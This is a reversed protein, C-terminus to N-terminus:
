YFDQLLSKSDVPELKHASKPASMGCYLMVEYITVCPNKAPQRNNQRTMGQATLIVVTNWEDPKLVRM